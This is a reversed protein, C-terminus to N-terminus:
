VNVVTKKSRLVGGLGVLGSGFFLIAGPIPVVSVSVEYLGVDNSSFFQGSGSGTISLFYNGAALNTLSLVLSTGGIDTWTTGNTDKLTMSFTEDVIDLMSCQCNYEDAKVLLSGADALNFSYSHSFDGVVLQPSIASDGSGMTGWEISDAHVMTFSLLLAAGLLLKNRYNM